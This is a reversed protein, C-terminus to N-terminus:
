RFFQLPRDGCRDSDDFIDSTNGTLTSTMQLGPSSTKEFQITIGVSGGVSGDMAFTYTYTSGVPITTTTTTISFFFM